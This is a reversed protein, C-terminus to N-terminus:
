NQFYEKADVDCDQHIRIQLGVVFPPTWGVLVSAEVQSLTPDPLMVSLAVIRVVRDMGLLQNM